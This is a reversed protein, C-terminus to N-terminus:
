GMDMYFAANKFGKVAELAKVQHPFLKIDSMHVVVKWMVGVSDVLCMVKVGACGQYPAMHYVM